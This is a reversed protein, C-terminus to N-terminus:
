GEDERGWSGTGFLQEEQYPQNWGLTYDVADVYDYDEIWPGAPVPRPVEKPPIRRNVEAQLGTAFLRYVICLTVVNILMAGGVMAVTAKPSKDGFLKTILTHVTGADGDPVEKREPQRVPGTPTLVKASESENVVPTLVCGELSVSLCIYNNWETPYIRVKTANFPALEHREPLSPGVNALLERGKDFWILGDTDAAQFAISFAKVWSPFGHSVNEWNPKQGLVPLGATTIARVQTKGVLNIELWQGQETKGACWASSMNAPQIGGAWAKAFHPPYMKASSSAVWAKDQIKSDALLDNSCNDPIYVARSLAQRKDYDKCFSIFRIEDGPLWDTPKAIDAWRGHGDGPDGVKATKDFLVATDEIGTRVNLMRVETKVKWDWLERQGLNALTTMNFNFFCGHKCLTEGSHVNSLVKLKPCPHTADLVCEDPNYERLQAHGVLKWHKECEKASSKGSCRGGKCIERRIDINANCYDLFCNLSEEEVRNDNALACQVKRGAWVTRKEKICVGAKGGICAISRCSEYDGAPYVMGDPCECSSGWEGVSSDFLGPANRALEDPSVSSEEIATTTSPYGAAGPRCQYTAGSCGGCESRIADDNGNLDTCPSSCHEVCAKNGRAEAMRGSDAAVADAALSAGAARSRARRALPQLGTPGVEVELLDRGALPAATAASHVGLAIVFQEIAGARM